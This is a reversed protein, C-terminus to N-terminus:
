GGAQKFWKWLEKYSVKKGYMLIGTRYIRAAFWTALVFGGVLLLISVVVEWMPVDFPIRAMMVIPSTFPIMSFWFVMASHPNRFAAMAVYLAIIIPITIPLMFQQSDTETDIAAGIAAFLAAYLLYGGIFYILFILLTQTINIGEVVSMIQAYDFDSKAVAAEGTNGEDNMVTEIGDMRTPMDSDPFVLTKVGFLIIVTLVIWLMFQTLAVLAIGLIKGMMLQFPKISSIIVEVIRSSKEEMVGRLVQTGYVFVFMYSLFAFLISIIMAVETSSAKEDGDSGIKVTSLQVDVSNVEALISNLESIQFSKLKEKRLHDRLSKRIHDKVDMTIQGSSVLRLADPKELLNDNIVLYAYYGSNEFNNRLEDAAEIPLYQYKILPSDELSHDYLGTDDLVAILKEQDDEMSALWGPVVFMAAFLLPGLLTMIIFSKKKIRTLYERQLVLSIKNM